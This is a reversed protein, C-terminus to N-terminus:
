LINVKPSKEREVVNETPHPDLSVPIDIENESESM